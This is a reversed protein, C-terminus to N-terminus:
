CPQRCLGGARVLPGGHGQGGVAEVAERAVDHQGLDAAGLQLYVHDFHLHRAGQLRPAGAEHLWDTWASRTSTSHLLAHHRLDATSRIPHRLLLDPSCAPLRLDPLLVSSSVGAADEHGSRVGVDFAEGVYRLKRSTTSLRVDIGRSRLHQEVPVAIEHDLPPLIQGALEVVHVRAGRHHLNEALELGIYGAGVVVARLPARGDAKRHACDEDVVAKIRDMDGIRRLVHVRPDDIGALPPRVPDAGPCLALADYPEDYEAGGDVERVRVTCAERDIAVVEHGTRVDIDLMERLSEPTQLLLRSRDTIVEGVHYPLGCNAFSVHHGRELVVIEADEDLRRARAAVSAGAAVGGVVVIKVVNERTREKM